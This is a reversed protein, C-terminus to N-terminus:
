WILDNECELFLLMYKPVDYEVGHVSWNECVVEAGTEQNNRLCIFCM